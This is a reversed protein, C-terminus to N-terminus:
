DEKQTFNGLDISISTRGGGTFDSISGMVDGSDSLVDDRTNDEPIVLQVNNGAVTARPTVDNSSTVFSQPANQVIGTKFFANVVAVSARNKMTSWAAEDKPHVLEFQTNPEQKLAIHWHGTAFVIQIIARGIRSEVIPHGFHLAQPDDTHVAILSPILNPDSVKKINYSDKLWQAVLTFKEEDSVENKQELIEEFTTM